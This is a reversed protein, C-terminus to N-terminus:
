RQAPGQEALWEPPSVPPQAVFGGVFNPTVEVVIPPISEFWVVITGRDSQLRCLANPPCLAGRHFEVALATGPLLELLNVALDVAMPCPLFTVTPPMQEDVCPRTSGDEVIVAHYPDQLACGGLAAILLFIAVLRRRSTM